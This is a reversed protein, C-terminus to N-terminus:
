HHEYYIEMYTRYGKDEPIFVLKFAGLAAFAIYTAASRQRDNPHVPKTSFANQYNYMVLMFDAGVVDRNFLAGKVGSAGLQIYALDHAVSGFESRNRPIYEFNPNDDYGKPNTPGTYSTGMWNKHLTDPNVGIENASGPFIDGHNDQIPKTVDIITGSIDTMYPKGNTNNYFRYGNFEYGDFLVFASKGYAKRAQENTTIDARYFYEQVDDVTRCLWDKGDPDVYKIPNNNGYHYLNLNTPNYIGGSSGNSNGSVFDSLAPDTSIWRSYKPDLYRAGYYYLGTEEDMEKGTFKYPLYESGKNSTKEVWTEGYPTYEIRQYEEGNCDTILSASGLHDSHYYFQNNREWNTTTETVPKFKTVIRTDGLYVNKVAQGGPSGPDTRIIWMSNFYLTESGSTYKNSRQGDQGYIYTTTYNSDVSSILQNRENWTYTRRYKDSSSPRSSSKDRFLGWGYDTSYVNEAEKNIKHYTEPEEGDFKGEQECIVNGNSDYKYYRSGASVLRHSYNDTDYIYEISYNLDDGITMQPSVTESSVKSIMNGLGESDFAFTQTYRSIYEPAIPSITPNHETYGTASILQHLNDYAYSQETKYNGTISDLCDNKYGLVNGVSDFSYTINQLPKDTDSKTKITDLWRRAPDYKYETSTGNGYEIYTRQGYADYLILFIFLDLVIKIEEQYETLALLLLLHPHNSKQNQRIKNNM